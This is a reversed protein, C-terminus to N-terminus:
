HILHPYLGLLGTIILDLAVILNLLRPIILILIGAILTIAPSLLVSHMNMSFVGIHFRAIVRSRAFPKTLWRPTVSARSSISPSVPSPRLLTV